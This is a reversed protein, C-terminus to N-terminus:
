PADGKPPAPRWHTPAVPLFVESSMCGPGKSGQPSGIMCYRETAWYVGHETSGDDYRAEFKWGDKPATEIPQWGDDSPPSSAPVIESMAFEREADKDLDFARLLWQPEPHWETTGFRVGIPQVRRVGSVGRHNRYTFVYAPPPEEPDGIEQVEQAKHIARSNRENVEYVAAALDAENMPATRGSLTVPTYSGYHSPITPLARQNWKEMARPVSCDDSAADCVTCKVYHCGPPGKMLVPGGGCFPCPKLENAM